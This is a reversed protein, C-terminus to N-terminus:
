LAVPPQPLILMTTTSTARGVLVRFHGSQSPATTTLMGLQADSLYYYANPTLGGSEGVVVADWQTTLLTLPGLATVFGVQTAAFAASALGLVGATGSASAEALSFIGNGSIYVPAGAAAVGSSTLQSQVSGGAGTVPPPTLPATGTPRAYVWFRQSSGDNPDTATEGSSATVVVQYTHEGIISSGDGPQWVRQLVGNVADLISLGVLVQTGDPRNWLMQVSMATALAAIAGPAQLQITMSPLLDGSVLSFAM